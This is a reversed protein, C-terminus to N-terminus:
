KSLWGFNSRLQGFILDLLSVSQAPALVLYDPSTTSNGVRDKAVIHFHYSNGPQLDPVVMFKNTSLDTDTTVQQGYPGSAGEGYEIIAMGKKSLGFSVLVQVSQHSGLDVTTDTKVNTIEPPTRDVPTRFTLTQSLAQNGFVDKGVVSVSYEADNELNELAYAHQSVLKDSGASGQKGVLAKDSSATIQYRVLEDIDSSSVWTLQATEATVKSVGFSTIQPLVVTKFQYEDSTLFNGAGDSGSLRLYYATGSILSSLRVLHHSSQTPDSQETGYQQSATGYKITTTSTSTTTWQVLASNLTIDSIQVNTIAPSSPMKISKIVSRSTNGSADKAIVRFQYTQSSQLNNLQVQHFLTLDGSQGSENEAVDRIGYQVLTNAIKNTKWSVTLSTASNIAADPGQTFVPPIIDGPDSHFSFEASETVNGAIDVSRVVAFYATGRTLSVLNVSHQTYITRDSQGFEQIYQGHVTGMKVISNSTKDTTWTVTAGTTTIASLTPGATIVPPISDATSRLVGTGGFIISEVGYNPSTFHTPAAVALGPLLLGVVIAILRYMGGSYVKVRKVSWSYSLEMNM